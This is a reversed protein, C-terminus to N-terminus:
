ILLRDERPFKDYKQASQEEVHIRRRFYQNTIIRKLASAIKPDLMEFDLFERREISQSTTLDGVSKAM